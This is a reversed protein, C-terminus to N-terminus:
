QPPKDLGFKRLNIGDTPWGFLKQLLGATWFYWAKGGALFWRPPARSGGGQFYQEIVRGIQAATAEASMTGSSSDQSIGLRQKIGQIYPRYASSQAQYRELEINSSANDSISSRIAGAMVYSVGIGYPAVELRLTDSLSLLAAKSANYAGAFPSSLQSGVSGVMVVLGSRSEIMSPVVAQTVRLVGWLNAEFLERMEGLPQEVLPGIRSVGANNIVCDIRGAARLVAQVADEVSEDKSVDLQVCEIGQEKLDSLSELRRASAFVAQIKQGGALGSDVRRSGPVEVAALVSGGTAGLCPVQATNCSFPLM